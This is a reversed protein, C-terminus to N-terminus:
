GVHASLAGDFTLVGPRTSRTSLRLNMAIRSANSLTKGLLVGPRVLM